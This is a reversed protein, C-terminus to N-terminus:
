FIKISVHGIKAVHRVGEDDLYKVVNMPHSTAARVFLWAGLNKPSPARREM